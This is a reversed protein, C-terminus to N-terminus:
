GEQINGHIRPAYIIGVKKFIKMYGLLMFHDGFRTYFKVHCSLYTSNIHVIVSISCM